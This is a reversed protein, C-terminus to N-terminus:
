DEDVFLVNIIDNDKINNEQITKNKDIEKANVLFMTKYNKYKPHDRFFREELTAFLDSSKCVLSYHGIDQSGM